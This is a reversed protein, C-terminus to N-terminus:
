ASAKWDCTCKLKMKHLIGGITFGNENLDELQKFTELAYRKYNEYNEDGSM